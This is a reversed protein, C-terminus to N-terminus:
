KRSKAKVGEPIYKTYYVAFILLIVALAWGVIGSWVQDIMLGILVCIGSLVIFMITLYRKM